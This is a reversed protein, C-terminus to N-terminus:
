LPFLFAFKRSGPPQDDNLSVYSDSSSRSSDSKSSSPPVPSARRAVVAAQVASVIPLAQGYMAAKPHPDKAPPLAASIDLKRPTRRRPRTPAQKSSGPANPHPYPTSIRRVRTLPPPRDRSSNSIQKSSLRSASGVPPPAPEPILSRLAVPIPRPSSPRRALVPAHSSPSTQYLETSTRRRKLAPKSPSQHQSSVPTPPPPPLPPVQSAATGASQRLISKPVSLTSWSGFLSDASAPPPPQVLARSSKSKTTTKNVFSSSTGAQEAQAPVRRHKKTQIDTSDIVRRPM